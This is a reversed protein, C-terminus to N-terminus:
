KRIWGPLKSAEQSKALAIGRQVAGDFRTDTDEIKIRTRFFEAWSFDAYPVDDRKEYGGQERVMWALSRYPDNGLDDFATPILKVDLPGKGNEDFPHVWKRREMEKWFENDGLKSFNEKVQAPLNQRVKSEIV